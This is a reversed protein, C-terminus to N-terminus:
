FAIKAGDASWSPFREKTHRDHTLNILGSGHPGVSFIDYDGDLREFAILGDTGPFAARAPLAMLQFVLALVLVRYITNAHLRPRDDADLMQGLDVAAAPAALDSRDVVHAERDIRALDDPDEARVAGPLRGRDLAQARQHLRRGSPDEDVADIGDSLRA